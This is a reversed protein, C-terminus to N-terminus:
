AENGAPGQGAAQDVNPAQVQVQSWVKQAIFAITLFVGTLILWLTRRLSEVWATGPEFLGFSLLLLLTGSVALLYASRVWFEAGCDAPCLGRLVKLLIPRMYTIAIIPGVVALFLSLLFVLTDM